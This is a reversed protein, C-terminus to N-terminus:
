GEDWFRDVFVFWRACGQHPFCSLCLFPSATKHVKVTPRWRCATNMQQWKILCCVTNDNGTDTCRRHLIVCGAERWHTSVYWLGGEERRWCGWDTMLFHPMVCVLCWCTMSCRAASHALAPFGSRVHYPDSFDHFLRSGRGLAICDHWSLVTCYSCDQESAVCLRIQDPFFYVLLIVAHQNILFPLEPPKM